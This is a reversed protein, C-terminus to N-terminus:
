QPSVTEEEIVILRLRKRKPKLLLETEEADIITSFLNKTNLAQFKM